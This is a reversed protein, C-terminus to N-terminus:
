SKDYLMRYFYYSGMVKKVYNKTEEYTIHEIFEDIDKDGFRSIWSSMAGPGGNYAGCAYYKNQYFSALQRGLYYAGMKISTQPDFLMASTFNGIGLANAISKGTAPMVQMLGLAGAYSGAQPDFRSEERIVALIFLPDVGYEQSYKDIYEMFAYPYMLYYLYDKYPPQLGSSLKTYNKGAIKQSGNYDKALLYLTSLQLIGLEDKEYNDVSAEIEVDASKYFEIILLEKAKEIHTFSNKIQTGPGDNNGVDDTEKAQGGDDNQGELYDKDENFLNKYVGPLLSKIQPNDPYMATNIYGIDAAIGNEELANKAAFTYYTYTKLSIIERYASLANEIDGTQEFSKAKWFLAKEGLQSGTFKEAMNSFTNLAADYDASKYQIWGLEWYADNIKDGSPYNDVIKQYSISANEFDDKLFYIRGLRYLADDAYNSQPFTSILKEYNKIAAGESDLNTEARGLFYLCDDAFSGSTFKSYCSFLYEKSSKYDRMNFYCMGLKFLTKAELAADDKTEEINELINKFESIASSYMYLEFFREGRKYIEDNNLVFPEILKKEAMMAIAAFANRAYDSEPYSLWIKRYNIFAEEFMSNKEKCVALQYIGYPLFESHSYNEIFNSYLKEAEAYDQKIFFLDAYELAAKQSFVSDPFDNILTSYNKQAYDFKDQMLMCKALYYIVHDQLILYTEKVQNFFYEAIVYDKAEFAEVGKIFYERQKELDKIGYTNNDYDKLSINYHSESKENEDKDEISDSSGAADETDQKEAVTAEPAINKEAPSEAATDESFDREMGPKDQSSTDAPLDKLFSCGFLFILLIVIAALSFIPM